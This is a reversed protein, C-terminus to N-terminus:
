LCFRKRVSSSTLYLLTGKSGSRHEKFIITVNRRRIMDFVVHKWSMAIYVYNIGTRTDDPKLKLYREHVHVAGWNRNSGVNQQVNVSSRM